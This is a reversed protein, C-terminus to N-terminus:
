VTPPWVWVLRQDLALLPATQHFLKDAPQTQKQMLPSPNDIADLHLLPLLPLLPLM